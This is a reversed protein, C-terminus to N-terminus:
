AADDDDDEEDEADEDTEEVALTRKSKKTKTDGGARVSRWVEIYPTDEDLHV